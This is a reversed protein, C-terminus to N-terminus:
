PRVESQLSQGLVWDAFGEGSPAQANLFRFIEFEKFHSECNEFAARLRPDGTPRSLLPKIERSIAEFRGRLKGKLGSNITVATCISDLLACVVDVPLQPEPATLDNRSIFELAEAKGKDSLSDRVGDILTVIKEGPHRKSLTSLANLMTREAYPVKDVISKMWSILTDWNARALGELVTAISHEEARAYLEIWTSAEGVYGLMLAAQGAAVAIRFGYAHPRGLIRTIPILAYAPHNGCVAKSALLLAVGAEDPWQASRYALETLMGLVAEELLQRHSLTANRHLSTVVSHPLKDGAEMGVEGNFIGRLLTEVGAIRDLAALEADLDRFATM